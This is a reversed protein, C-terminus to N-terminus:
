EPSLMLYDTDVGCWFITRRMKERMLGTRNEIKPLAPVPYGGEKAHKAVPDKAVRVQEVRVMAARDM